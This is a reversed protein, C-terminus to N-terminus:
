RVPNAVLKFMGPDFYEKIHYLLGIDHYVFYNLRGHKILNLANIVNFPSIPSILVGHSRLYRETSTGRLTLVSMKRAMLDEIGVVNIPDDSRGVILNQVNYLPQASYLLKGARKKNFGAGCYLHTKGNEMERFIRKLPTYGLPLKIKIAKPALYTEIKRLIDTCIGSLKGGKIIYKPQTDQFGSILEISVAEAAPYLFLLPFGIM